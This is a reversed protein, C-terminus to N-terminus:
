VGFEAAYFPDLVLDGHGREVLKRRVNKPACRFEDLTYMLGWKTNRGTIRTDNVAVAGNTFVTVKLLKM